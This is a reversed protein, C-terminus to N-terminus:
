QPGKPMVAWHTVRADDEIKTGHAFHWEHNADVCDHNAFAIGGPQVFVLCWDSFGMGQDHEPLRETMSVWHITEDM